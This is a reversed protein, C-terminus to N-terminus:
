VLLSLSYLRIRVQLYAQVSVSARQMLRDAKNRFASLVIFIHAAIDKDGEDLDICLLPKFNGGNQVSQLKELGIEM